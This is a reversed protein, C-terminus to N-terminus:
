DQDGDPAAEDVITRLRAAADAHGAQELETAQHQAVPGASAAAPLTAAIATAAAFAILCRSAGSVISRM